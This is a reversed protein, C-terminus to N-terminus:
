KLVMAFLVIFVAICSGCFIGLPVPFVPASKPNLADVIAQVFIVGTFILIGVCLSHSLMRFLVSSLLAGTFIVICIIIRKKDSNTLIM